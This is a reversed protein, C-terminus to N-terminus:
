RLAMRGTRNQQILFPVCKSLPCNCIAPEVIVTVDTHCTGASFLRITYPQSTGPNPLNAFSVAGATVTINTPAGYVPGTGYSSGAVIDARDTNQLTTLDIRANNNAVPGTCSATVAHPVATYSPIKNVIVMTSITSSCGTAVTCTASYTTTISPSVLISATTEAKSWVIKGGECGGVTLTASQGPCVTASTVTLVPAPNVTITTSAIDSCGNVTNVTVSYVGSTAVVISASQERTSWVYTAGGSATLTASEGQCITTRIVTIVATPKPNVTINGTASGSCSASSTATVSYAGGVTGTAINPQGPMSTLGASFSYNTYGAVAILTASQGACITASSLTVVPNPNVTISGTATNSCGASNIATVSYSGAAAGTAQNTTGVQTLGTSFTYSSFGATATLSVTRGACITM